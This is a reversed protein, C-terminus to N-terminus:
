QFGSSMNADFNSTYCDEENTRNNDRFCGRKNIMKDIVAYFLGNFSEFFVSVQKM